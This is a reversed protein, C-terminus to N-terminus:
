LHYWNNRSSDLSNKKAKANMPNMALTVRVALFHKGRSTCLGAFHIMVETITLSREKDEKIADALGGLSEGRRGKRNKMPTLM